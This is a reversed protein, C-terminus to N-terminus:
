AVKEQNRQVHPYNELGKILEYVSKNLVPHIWEPSIESLPQLVFLRQHMRPHPLIPDNKIHILGHYDIIDLDLVRSSNKINDRPGFSHEISKLTKLLLTPSLATDIQVVANKYWPQNSVPVSATLHISSSGLIRLGRRMMSVRAAEIVHGTSSYQGPLNSGLAVFIM